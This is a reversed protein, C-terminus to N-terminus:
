FGAVYTSISMTPLRKYEILKSVRTKFIMEASDLYAKDLHILVHKGSKESFFLDKSLIKAFTKPEGVLIGV